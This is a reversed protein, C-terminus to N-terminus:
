ASSDRTKASVPSEEPDDTGRRPGRKYPTGWWYGLSLNEDCGMKRRSSSRADPLLHERGCLPCLSEVPAVM